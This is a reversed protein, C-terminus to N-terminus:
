ALFHMIEIRVRELGMKSLLFSLDLLFGSKLKKVLSISVKKSVKKPFFCLFFLMKQARWARFHESKTHLIPSSGVRIVM